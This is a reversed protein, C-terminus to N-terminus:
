ARELTLRTHTHYDPSSSAAGVKYRKCTAAPALGTGDAPGILCILDGRPPLAAPFDATLALITLSDASLSNLGMVAREDRRVPAGAFTIATAYSAAKQAAADASWWLSDTTSGFTRITQSALYAFPDM